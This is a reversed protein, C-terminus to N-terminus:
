VNDLNLPAARSVMSLLTLPRRMRDSTLIACRYCLWPCIVVSRAACMQARRNMQGSMDWIDGLYAPALKIKNKETM